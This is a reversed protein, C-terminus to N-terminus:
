RVWKEWEHRIRVERRLEAKACEFAACINCPTKKNCLNFSCDVTKLLGVIKRLAVETSSKFSKSM